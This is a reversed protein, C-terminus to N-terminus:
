RQLSKEDASNAKNPNKKQSYNRRAMFEQICVEIEVKLVRQGQEIGEAFLAYANDLRECLDQHNNRELIRSLKQYAKDTKKKDSVFKNYLQKGGLAMAGGVLGLTGPPVGLLLDFIAEILFVSGGVTLTVGLDEKDLHDLFEIIKDM